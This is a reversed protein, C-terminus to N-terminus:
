RKIIKKVKSGVRVLLGGIPFSTADIVLRRIGINQCYLVIGNFTCIEVAEGIQKESVTVIFQSEAPSPYVSFDYDTNDFSLTDIVSINLDKWNVASKYKSFSSAPVYVVMQSTNMNLFANNILDPPNLAMCVLSTLSVCRNFAHLGITRISNPLNIKTLKKCGDFASVGIENVGDVVSVEGLVGPLCNVFTKDEKSYLLGNISKYTVNEESVEYSKLSDCGSFAEGAIHKVKSPILLADKMRECHAFAEGGITELSDPFLIGKLNVCNCFSGAEIYKLTAPFSVQKLNSDNAFSKIDITYVNYRKKDSLLSAPIAISDANKNKLGEVTASMYKDDLSYYIGDFLPYAAHTALPLLLFFASLIHQKM